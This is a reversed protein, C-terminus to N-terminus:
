DKLKFNTWGGDPTLKGYKEIIRKSLEPLTLSLQENHIKWQKFVSQLQAKTLLEGQECSELKEYM